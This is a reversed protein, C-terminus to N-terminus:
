RMGDVLVLDGRVCVRVDVRGCLAADLGPRQALEGPEQEVLGLLPDLGHHRTQRAVHDRADDLEHRVVIQNRHSALHEVRQWSRIQAGSAVHARARLGVRRGVIGLVDDHLDEVAPRVGDAVDHEARVRDRAVDVLHGGDLERQAIEERREIELRHQRVAHQRVHIDLCLDLLLERPRGGQPELAERADGIGVGHEVDVDLLHAPVRRLPGPAEAQVELRALPSVPGVAVALAEVHHDV